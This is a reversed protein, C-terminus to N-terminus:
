KIGSLKEIEKIESRKTKKLEKTRTCLNTTFYPEIKRKFDSDNLRTDKIYSYVLHKSNLQFFNGCDSIGGTTYISVFETNIQGKYLKLIKFKFEIRRYNRVRFPQEENDIPISDIMKQENIEVVKGTFVLDAANFNREVTVKMCSCSYM